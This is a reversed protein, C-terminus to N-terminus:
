ERAAEARRTDILDQVLDIDDALKEKMQRRLVRTMEVFRRKAEAESLSLESPTDADLADNAAAQVLCRLEAEMSRGNKAARVRLADRVEDPVNRITLTAM